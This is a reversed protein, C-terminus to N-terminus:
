KSGYTQIDPSDAYFVEENNGSNPTFNVRGNIKNYVQDDQNRRLFSV